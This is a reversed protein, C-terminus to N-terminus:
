PTNFGEYVLLQDSTGSPGLENVVAVIQGAPDTTCTASGIYKNAGMDVPQLFPHGGNPAITATVPDPTYSGYPTFVCTVDTEALGVNMISISTWYGSNENMVLPLVVTGTAADASFAGYAEGNVGPRLQNVVATLDQTASNTTVLASGIFKANAVCNTTMGPLTVGAFAYLAFTGSKGAAITQTETCATGASSPTYSVTVETATGGANLINIGTVYGSNNANILPFIPATASTIFGSYAFMVDPNEEIATAAIPQDSTVIGSFVKGPHAETAQDFTAAAGPKIVASNTVGDDYAVSVNADASGANQVNFWTNYGSNGKMLLPLSVTLSGANSGDYAAAAEGSNGLINSISAIQVDSEIVVSGSFGDDTPIPFYVKSGLPDITDSVPSNPDESGDPLYFRVSINATADALNQLSIGSTYTFQGAKAPSQAMGLGAILLAVILLFRIYKM